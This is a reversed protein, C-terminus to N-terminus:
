LAVLAGRIILGHGAALVLVAVLWLIIFREPKEGFSKSVRPVLAFFATVLLLAIPMVSLALGAPAASDAGVGFPLPISRGPPLATALGISLCIMTTLMGVSVILPLAIKM